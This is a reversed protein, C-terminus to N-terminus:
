MRSCKIKSKIKSADELQELLVDIAAAQKALQLKDEDSFDNERRNFIWGVVLCGAINGNPTLPIFAASKLHYFHFIGADQMECNKIDHVFTPIPKSRMLNNRLTPTAETPMKVGLAIVSPAHHAVHEFKCSQYYFSLGSLGYESNSFLWITVRDCNNALAIESLKNNIEVHINATRDLYSDHLAKDKKQGHKKLVKTRFLEVLIDLLKIVTLGVVYLLALFLIILIAEKLRFHKLIEVASQSAIDM